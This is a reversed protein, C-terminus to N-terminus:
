GKLAPSALCRPRSGRAMSASRPPRLGMHFCDAGAWEWVARWSTSPTHHCEDWVMVDPRDTTQMLRARLTDVSVVMTPQMLCPYGAALIGHPIGM